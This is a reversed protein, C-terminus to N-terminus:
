KIIIKQVKVENGDNMRVIYVGETLDSISVRTSSLDAQKVIRGLMDILTVTANGTETTFYLMGDKAFCFSEQEQEEIGTEVKFVLTFRAAYENGTAQFTYDPQQLLDTDIGTIHDILHLYSFNTDGPTATLTFTSPRTNQFMLTMTEAEQNLHAIALNGEDNHIYLMPAGETPNDIKNLSIGQGFYAVARDSGANGTVKLNLTPMAAKANVSEGNARANTKNITLDMEETTKILIGQGPQIADQYTCVHWAGENTLTYFGSALLEDDIAGGNGKYIVHPFPNGILNFGSLEDPRDETYMLYTTVESGNLAGVFAPAFTNTNAYLYGRGNEFITFDNTEDKYNEWEEGYRGENYRYLDFEPNLFDSEEIEMENMPSAITYWGGEGEYGIIEKEVTAMVEGEILYTVAVAKIRRNGSSGGISFTVASSSGTWVPSAFLGVNTTIGISGDGSGYTLTISTITRDSAVVFTNKPYVRIATGTNYYKPGNTGNNKNFVISVNDDIPIVVGNLDQGNSYGQQSFDISAERESPTPTNIFQAGDKIVLSEVETNTLNGTVTLVKGSQLTLTVGDEITMQAVKADVDLLCNAEIFAEDYAGPLANGSWNSADSWNGETVFYFSEVESSFYIEYPAFLLGYGDEIFPISENTSVYEIDNEHDYLKFTLPQDNEGYVNVYLLYHGSPAFYRTVATGRCEDGSFVGVELQDSFQEEDDIFVIGVIATTQSYLGPDCPTYHLPLFNAVLDRDETVTFTYQTESYVMEDDETWKTFAWGENATATLTCQTDEDFIGAGAVIGGEEPDAVATITFQEITPTIFYAAYPTQLLGVGDESFIVPEMNPDQEYEIGTSHDYLKFYMSHGNEGFACIYFIHQGTPIFLDAMASGRCEDGSFIGVELNDSHQEVGDLYAVIVNTNTQSYLGEGCPVYHNALLIGNLLCALLLTLVKKM